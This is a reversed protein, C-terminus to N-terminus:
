TSARASSHGASAPPLALFALCAAWLVLGLTMAPRSVLGVPWGPVNNRFVRMAMLLYAFWSQAAGFVGVLLLVATLSRPQHLGISRAALATLGLGFLGLPM